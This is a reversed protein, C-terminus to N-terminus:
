FSNINLKVIVIGESDFICPFNWALAFLEGTFRVPGHVCKSSESCHAERGETQEKGCPLLSLSLTVGRLACLELRKGM